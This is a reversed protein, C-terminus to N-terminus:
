GLKIGGSGNIYITQATEDYLNFGSKSNILASINCWGATNTFSLNGTGLNCATTVNCYDSFAIAWNTNPRGNGSLNKGCKKITM